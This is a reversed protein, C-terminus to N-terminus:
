RSARPRVYVDYRVTRDRYQRSVDPAIPPALRMRKVVVHSRAAVRALSLLESADDDDGVLARVLRMEKKVLASKGRQPFMPDVYVVDPPSDAPWARLVDRADAHVLRLRESFLAALLESARSARGMGDRVLEVLVACREVATVRYGYLALLFADRCLGATADLVHPSEAARGIARFMLGFRNRGVNRGLRGGVFDVLLPGPAAPRVDRLELCEDTLWLVLGAHDACAEPRILSLGLRRALQVARDTASPEAPCIVVPPRESARDTSSRNERM